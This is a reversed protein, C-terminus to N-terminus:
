LVKVFSKLFKRRKIRYTTPGWVSKGRIQLRKKLNLNNNTIYNYSSTDPNVFRAVARILFARTKKKKRLKARPKCIRVSVKIFGGVLAPKRQYTHFLRALYVGSSDCPIVM